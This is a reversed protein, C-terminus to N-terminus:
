CQRRGGRGLSPDVKGRGAAMRSSVDLCASVLATAHEPVRASVHGGDYESVRASVIATAMRRQEAPPLLNDRLTVLVTTPVDIEHRWDISRL